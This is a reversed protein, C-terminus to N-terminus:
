MLHWAIPLFILIILKISRRFLRKSWSKSSPDVVALITDTLVDSNYEVAVEVVTVVVNPAILNAFLDTVDVQDVEPVLKAVM